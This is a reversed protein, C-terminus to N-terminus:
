NKLIKLANERYFKKLTADSLGLGSLPWPTNSVDWAYFHEDLTEWIRFTNRYMSLNYSQDTGYLLRDAYKEMFQKAFRPIAAVYAERQSVDAYLNPYKDFMRGLQDLDYTQNMFHCAIFTTRPHKKLAREMTTVMETLDPIDKQNDLRYYYSEFLLDNHEDMPEYMWRPDGIHLNIPLKLDALKELVPDMRPDDIHMGPSGPLGKGKDSIEGVGSAGLKVCRELEAITSPGSGTLDLGCWLEFRDAYKGYVAAYKDFTKGIGCFLITKQVGAEDMNRLQVIAISDLNGGVPAHMHMDIALYKARKILTKPNKFITQPRYDKLLLSDQLGSARMQRQQAQSLFMISSFFLSFLLIKM